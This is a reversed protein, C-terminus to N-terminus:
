TCMNTRNSLAQVYQYMELVHQWEFSVFCMHVYQKLMQRQNTLINNQIQHNIHQLTCLNSKTTPPTPPAACM